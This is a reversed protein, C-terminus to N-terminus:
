ILPENKIHMFGISDLIYNVKGVHQRYYSEYLWVAFRTSREWMLDLPSIPHHAQLVASLLSVCYKKFADTTAGNWQSFSLLMAIAYKEMAAAFLQSAEARETQSLYLFCAIFDICLWCSNPIPPPEYGAMISLRCEHKSIAPIPSNAFHAILQMQLGTNKWEGLFPKLPIASDKLLVQLLAFFLACGESDLPAVNPQDL